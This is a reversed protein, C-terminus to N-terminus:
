WWFWASVVLGVTWVVLYHPYCGLFVRACAKKEEEPPRTELEEVEQPDPAKSTAHIWLRGAFHTDFGSPDGQPSGPPSGPPSSPPFDPLVGQVRFSGM